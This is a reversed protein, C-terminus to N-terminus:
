LNFKIKRINNRSMRNLGTNKIFEWAEYYTGHVITQFEYPNTLPTLIEEDKVEKLSHGQVARIYYPPRNVVEYRGKQDSEAVQLIKELTGHHNKIPRAKLLDDLLVFGNSEIKLGYKVAEHRLLYSMSKSLETLEKKSCQKKENSKEMLTNIYELTLENYILNFL